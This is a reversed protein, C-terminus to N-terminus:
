GGVFDNRVTEKLFDEVSRRFNEISFHDKIFTAGYSARKAAEEPNARIERLAAAAADVDAEAWEKMSVMYEHPLIPVMHYPICWATDARCFETNASWNTAVVPKGQSMAEAMGIGFGESKHLSLYADCAATLGDVDARPLYQPIHIFQNSIGCKEVAEEMEKLQRTNAKAGKTKFLLKATADGRFAKAFAKVAAPINKRYYSGFDFNFFVVFDDKGIGYKARLDDRPTADRLKFRFPYVIKYVKQSPFARRYYEYNFDSMGVIADGSERLYPATDHIGHESEHFVIRVRRCQPLLKDPLPSRYMMVIHSYRGIDFEELPTVIRAADVAPIQPKLLTDYTQFPIGADHLNLIFDRLTKSLSVQGTLEGIVTIGRTPTSYRSNKVCRVLRKRQICTAYIRHLYSVIGTIGWVRVKTIARSIRGM